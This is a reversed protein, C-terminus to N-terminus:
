FLFGTSLMRNIVNLLCELSETEAFVIRYFSQLEINKLHTSQMKIKLFISNLLTLFLIFFLLLIGMLIHSVINIHSIFGLLSDNNLSPIMALSRFSLTCHVYVSFLFFLPSHFFLPLSYNLFEVSGFSGSAPFSSPLLLLSCCHLLHKSPMESEISM